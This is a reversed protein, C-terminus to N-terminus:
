FCLSREVRKQKIQRSICRKRFSICWCSVSPLLSVWSELPQWIGGEDDTYHEVCGNLTIIVASVILYVCMSVCIYIMM